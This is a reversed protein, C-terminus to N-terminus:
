IGYEKYLQKCFDEDTLSRKLDDLRNDTLLKDTLASRRAEGEAVGEARGEARGTKYGAEHGDQYYCGKEFAVSEELSILGMASGKWVSDKNAKQVESDIKQILPTDDVTNDLVYELLSSIEKNKCDKYAKANFIIWTNDCKIQTTTDEKCTMNFTYQPINKDFPDNLCIFIIFSKPLTKYETGRRTISTDMAGQYYRLRKGLHTFNSTQMEIDFVEDTGKVFVDMSIFKSTPSAAHTHEIDSYEIHEIEIGLILELLEKCIEKDQMVYSFMVSDSFSFDKISLQTTMSDETELQIEYKDTDLELLVM